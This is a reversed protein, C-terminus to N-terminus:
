GDNRAGDEDLQAPAALFLQTLQRDGVRRRLGTLANFGFLACTVVITNGWVHHIDRHQFVQAVAHSFGGADHRAEFGKELLLVVAVAATYVLTRVTVDVLAARQQVWTGLPVHEMVLVVKAVVVAGILALSLGSAEINYEALLLKKLVILVGFWVAFYLTTLGVAKLEERMKEQVSMGLPSADVRADIARM